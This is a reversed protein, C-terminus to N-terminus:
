EDDKSEDASRLSVHEISVLNVRQDIMGFQAVATGHAHCDARVGYEGHLTTFRPQDLRLAAHFAAGTLHITDGTGDGYFAAYTAGSRHDDSGELTLAFYRAATRLM